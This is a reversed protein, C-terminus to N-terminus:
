RQGTPQVKVQGAQRRRRAQGLAQDLQRPAIRRDDVLQEGGWLEAFAQGAVPEVQHPIRVRDAVVTILIVGDCRVTVPHDLREVVVQREVPKGGGLKRAVQQRAGGDVVLNGAAVISQQLGGVLAAHLLLLIEGLVRGVAHAIDGGDPETRRNAATLTVIVLIVRECLPIKVAESGEKGVHIIDLSKAAAVRQRGRSVRLHFDDRREGDGPLLRSRHDSAAHLRSGDAHQRTSVPHIVGALDHQRGRRMKQWREDRLLAGVPQIQRVPQHLRLIRQSCAHEHVPEPIQKEAIAQRAREVIGTRLAFPRRVRLQEVPQRDLEDLAAPIDLM